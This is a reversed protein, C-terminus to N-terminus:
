APEEIDRLVGRALFRERIERANSAFAPSERVALRRPRPLDV